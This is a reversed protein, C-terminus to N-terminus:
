LKAGRGCAGRTRWAAATSSSRRHRAERRLRGRSRRPWASPPAAYRRISSCRATQTRPSHPIHLHASPRHAPRRPSPAATRRARAEGLTQPRPRPGGAACLRRRARRGARAACPAQGPRVGRGHALRLGVAARSGVRLLTACRQARRAGRRRDARSAARTTARGRARARAARVLVARRRVSLPAATCSAHRHLLRPPATAPVLPAAPARLHASTRCACPVHPAHPVHPVHPACPACPDGHYRVRVHCVAETRAATARLLEEVAVAVVRGGLLVPVRRLEELLLGGSSMVVRGGAGGGDAAGEGSGGGGGEEPALTAWPLPRPTDAAPPKELRALRVSVILTTGDTHLEEAPAAAVPGTGHLEPVALCRHLCQEWWRMPEATAVDTAAAADGADAFAYIAPPYMELFQLPADAPELAQLAGLLAVAAANEAGKKTPCPECALEVCGREVQRAGTPLPLGEPWGFLARGVFPPKSADANHVSDTHIRWQTQESLAGKYSVYENLIARPGKAAEWARAGEVFRRDRQQGAGVDGGARPVAWAGLLVRNYKFGIFGVTGGVRKALKTELDGISVRRASVAPRGMEDRDRGKLETSALLADGWVEAGCLASALANRAGGATECQEPDFYLLPQEAAQWHRARATYMCMCMGHVYM